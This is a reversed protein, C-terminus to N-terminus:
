WHFDLMMALAYVTQSYTRIRCPISCIEDCRPCDTALSVLLWSAACRFAMSVRLVHSCLVISPPLEGICKAFNEKHLRGDTSMEDFRKEVSKWGDKGGSTKDLFRLGRLGSQASSHTRKLGRMETSVKSALRKMGSALRSPQKKMVPPPPPDGWGGAGGDGTSSTM